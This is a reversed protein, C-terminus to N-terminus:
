HDSHQGYPIRLSAETGEGLQSKITLIGSHIRAAKDAFNLGLGSRGKRTSFFPELVKSLDTAPIGEGDDSVSVTLLGAEASVAINVEAGSPKSEIANRILAAIAKRVAGSDIRAPPLDQALNTRIIANRAQASDQVSRVADNVVGAVSVAVPDLTKPHSLETLEAVIEDIRQTERRIIELFPQLKQEKELHLRLVSLAALIGQLPNRLEHSIGSLIPALREYDSTEM